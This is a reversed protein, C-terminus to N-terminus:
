GHKWSIDIFLSFISCIFRNVGLICIDIGQVPRLINNRLSWDGIVNKKTRREKLKTGVLPKYM